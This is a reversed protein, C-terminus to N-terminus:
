ETADLIVSDICNNAAVWKAVDGQASRGVM